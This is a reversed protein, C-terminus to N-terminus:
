MRWANKTNEYKFCRCTGKRHGGIVEVILEPLEIRVGMDQFTQQVDPSKLSELVDHVVSPLVAYTLVVCNRKLERLLCSEFWSYGFFYYFFIMSVKKYGYTMLIFCLM